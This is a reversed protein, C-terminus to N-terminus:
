RNKHRRFFLIGAAVVIAIFISAAVIVPFAQPTHPIPNVTPLPTLDVTFEVTNKM